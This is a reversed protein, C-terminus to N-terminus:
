NIMIGHRRGELVGDIAITLGNFGRGYVGIRVRKRQPLGYGMARAVSSGIGYVPIDERLGHM